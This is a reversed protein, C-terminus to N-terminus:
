PNITHLIDAAMRNNPLVDDDYISRMRKLTESSHAIVYVAGEKIERGRFSIKGSEAKFEKIEKPGDISLRSISAVEVGPPLSLEVTFKKIAPINFGAASSRCKKNLLVLLTAEDDVTRLVQAIVSGPTNVVVSDIPYSKALLRAVTKLEGNIKGMSNWLEPNSISGKSQTGNPYMWYGLSQTGGAVASLAMYRMENGSPFRKWESSEPRSFCGMVFWSALPESAIRTVRATPYCLLPQLDSSICYYDTALIDAIRGYTFFNAPRNSKGVIVLNVTDQDSLAQKEAISNMRPAELGLRQGMWKIDKHNFIDVIDPEDPLYGACINPINRFQTSAQHYPAIVQINNRWREIIEKVGPRRHHWSIDFNHWKLNESDPGEYIAFHFTNPHARFSIASRGRSHKIYVNHKSGRKLSGPLELSIPIANGYPKGVTASKIFDIGDFLVQQMAFNDDCKGIWVHITKLDESMVVRSILEKSNLKAFDVTQKYILNQNSAFEIEVPKIPNRRFKILLTVIQNSCLKRPSLRWWMIDSNPAILSDIEKGNVLLRNITIPTKGRYVIHSEFLSGFDDWWPADIWCTLLTETDDKVGWDNGWDAVKTGRFPRHFSTMTEWDGAAYSNVYLSFVILLISASTRRMM